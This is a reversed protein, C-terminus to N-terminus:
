TSLFGRESLLPDNPIDMTNRILFTERPISGTLSTFSSGWDPQDDGSRQSLWSLGDQLQRETFVPRIEIRASSEGRLSEISPSLRFDIYGGPGFVGRTSLMDESPGDVRQFGEPPQPLSIVLLFIILPLTVAIIVHIRWQITRPKSMNM